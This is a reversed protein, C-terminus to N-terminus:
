EIKIKDKKAHHIPATLVYSQKFIICKLSPDFVTLNCRPNNQDNYRVTMATKM